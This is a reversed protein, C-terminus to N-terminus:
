YNKQKEKVKRIQLQVLRKFLKLRFNELDESNNVREILLNRFSNHEALTFKDKYLTCIHRIFAEFSKKAAVVIEQELKLIIVKDKELESLNEKDKFLKTFISEIEEKNKM